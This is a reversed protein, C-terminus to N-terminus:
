SGNIGTTRSTSSFTEGGSLLNPNKRGYNALIHDQIRKEWQKIGEISRDKIPTQWYNFSAGALNNALMKLEEDPNEIPTLAHLNIQNDIYSDSEKMRDQIKSDTATVSDEINLLRKIPRLTSYGGAPSSVYPAPDNETL